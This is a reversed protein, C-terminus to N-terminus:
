FRMGSKRQNYYYIGGTLLFILGLMGFLGGFIWDSNFVITICGQVFFFVGVIGLFIITAPLRGPKLGYAMKSKEMMEQYLLVEQKCSESCVLINLDNPVACKRCVAKSCHKCVGVAEENEHVYCKM